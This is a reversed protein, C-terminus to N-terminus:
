RDPRPRGDLRRRWDGSVIRERATPATRPLYAFADRGDELPIKRRAYVDPHEEFADLRELHADDVEWLEGSVADHGTAVLAPFEGLDFLTFAPATRVTGIFRAGELHVHNAEGRLLSGYVFVLHPV